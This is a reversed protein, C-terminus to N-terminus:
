DPIKVSSSGNGKKNVQIKVPLRRTLEQIHSILFINRGQMRLGELAAIATDLTETDLTGFGEDLFLSNLQARGRSLESLALALALSTLFSEGGSLTEVPREENANWRDVVSLDGITEVKLQYRESTLYKLQENALSGMQRFMIELAFDRLANAPITEQLRQWRELEQQAERQEGGLAERKELADKLDDIKQQQAGIEQQAEQIQAEIEGLQTEIQGLADPDFPSEEFRTQLETIELALQQMEDEHVDIQDTLKQMQDDDRFANDHAEPVGFGEKELKNFYVQRSADLKEVSANFQKEGIEHATQRQTLLNRSNQLRQEAADRTNEKTQLDAELAGIAKNIEDETELGGTKERAVSLFKERERQYEDIETQLTAHHDKLSELTGQDAEINANLVQLQTEASRRENECAEVEKIKSDFQDVAEKPKVGHFADPMSEWFRTETAAIDAQLDAITNCLGTLQTETDKLDNMERTIDNGCTELQQSVIQLANSAQTHTQKAEAIDAIATDAMDIQERTWESSVDADPYIVQWAALLKAADERLTKIEATCVKIQDATNRKNQETQIQKTKLTQLEAQAADTGAEAAALAKEARQLREESEPEVVDACPHDTAGCVSCPEGPHLHQRLQNIPNAWRASEEEAECSKVVEAAEQCVETQSALDTELQEIEAGLAAATDNLANLRNEADALDDQTAEYKQAIPQAKSAQRKRATWEEHTGTALLENLESDADELTTEAAAKESLHQAHVNSLKKIERKLSLVKKDANAKNKLETELQKERSTLEALLGTVRNFRQQRDSPLPNADLFHQADDIQKQLETQKTQRNALQNELTDIQNSLNALEPTRKDAEAFREAAREVDLKAATYVPMKQDRKTSTAQYADAKEDYVAQDAKVQEEAETKEAEASSLADAANELESKATDFGDKERLLRQAKEALERESKLADIEPQQGLLEEQRKKSSQLREFEETRKTERAKEEQIQQIEKGLRKADEQLRSLEKEAAAVQERSAEPIGELEKIVEAYAAEVETVKDNLAQKLVDYISVGATAELITRREENSAKLFAAFEGQALMVSRRFADFDLGLISEVEESVTNQSSGMSKGRASLKDSILKGDEAYLLQVKPAGKQKASWTALYRTGNAIFYVEAFGENEGHSILHSPNQSGVGSLRPTKGYLAVCIADLLTTKGSGTPGTIAVLSTDDLPSKEFDIDVPERFSNLNKLKLKCIKM